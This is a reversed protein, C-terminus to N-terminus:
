VKKVIWADQPTAKNDKPKQIIVELIEDNKFLSRMFSDPHFASYTRHGEIVNGRVVLEGKDYKTIEAPSMIKKFNDGQTTLFLAGNIKLVRKLEATWKYHMEESLHTFISIGYIFNFTEDAYPLSPELTNLNFEIDPLNDRCWAISKANYDTGFVKSGEGLLEPMHRVVRGPGCGWDLVTVKRVPTYKRLSDIIWSAVERGGLLYKEYNIQFSEYMLYDPPLSINPNANLFAKNAQKNKYSQVYYRVQDTLHMLRFKRLLNSINGKNM